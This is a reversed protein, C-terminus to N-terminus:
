KLILRFKNIPRLEKPAKQVNGNGYNVIRRIANLLATVGIRQIPYHAM